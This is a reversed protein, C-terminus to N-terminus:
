SGGQPQGAAPAELFRDRPPLVPHGGIFAPAHPDHCDVCNNRQRPGRSLDWHGRMGGHAGRRYDRMQSGHCQGCLTMVELMPITTGDALKLQDHHGVVHCSACALTGHSFVLGQHFEVLDSAATPLSEGERLSHCTKCAVRVEQAAGPQRIGVSTLRAAQNIEVEHIPPGPPPAYREPQVPSNCGSVVGIAIV